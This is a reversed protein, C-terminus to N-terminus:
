SGGGHSLRKLPIASRANRHEVQSGKRALRRIARALAGQWTPQVEEIILSTFGFEAILRCFKDSGGKPGNLDTISVVVHRVDPLRDFAFTIKREVFRRLMATPCNGKSRIELPIM